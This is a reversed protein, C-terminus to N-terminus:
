LRLNNSIVHGLALDGAKFVACVGMHLRPRRPVIVQDSRGSEVGWEVQARAKTERLARESVPARSGNGFLIQGGSRHM